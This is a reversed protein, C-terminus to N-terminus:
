TLKSILTSLMHAPSDEDEQDEIFCKNKISLFSYYDKIISILKKNETGKQYCKYLEIYIMEFRVKPWFIKIYNIGKKQVILHLATRQLWLDYGEFYPVSDPIKIAICEILDECTDLHALYTLSFYFVPFLNYFKEWEDSNVSDLSDWAGTEKMIKNLDNKKKDIGKLWWNIYYELAEKSSNILDNSNILKSWLSKDFVTKPKYLDVWVSENFTRLDELLQHADDKILNRSKFRNLFKIKNLKSQYQNQSESFFHHSINRCHIIDYLNDLSSEKGFRCIVKSIDESEQLYLPLLFSGCDIDKGNLQHSLENSYIGEFCYGCM